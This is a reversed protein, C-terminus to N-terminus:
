SRLNQRILQVVADPIEAPLMHGTDEFIHTAFMAPLRHAQRTPLVRDQTGWLVKVPMTLAELRERPIVGQRGDRHLGGAMKQLMERQRPNNRMAALRRVTKECIANNWGYMNELAAGLTEADTAHAYRKLLKHNIEFGFGGPALLTMSAIAQPQELAALAAVAGGMSHGVLHVPQVQRAAIEALVAAVAIKVNGADPYELSQGHGPLDFAITRAEKALMSQIRAWTEHTDGFGHLFIVAPGDNGSEAAYLRDASM